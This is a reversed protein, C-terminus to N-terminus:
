CGAVIGLICSCKILTLNGLIFRCGSSARLGSCYGHVCTRISLLGPAVLPIELLSGGAATKVKASRALGDSGTLLEVIIGKCPLLAPFKAEEELQATGLRGYVRMVGFEDLFPNLGCLTKMVSKDTPDKSGFAHIQEQRIWIREAAKLEDAM